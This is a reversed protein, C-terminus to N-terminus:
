VATKLLDSLLFFKYMKVMLPRKWVFTNFDKIFTIKTYYTRKLVHIDKFLDWLGKFKVTQM